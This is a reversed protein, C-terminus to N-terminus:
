TKSMAREHRLLSVQLPVMIPMTEALLPQPAPTEVEPMYKTLHARAVLFPIPVHVNCLLRVSCTLEHTSARV